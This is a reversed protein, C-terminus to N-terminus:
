SVELSIKEYTNNLEKASSKLEEYTIEDRLYKWFDFLFCDICAQLTNNEIYKKKGFWFDFIQGANLQVFFCDVDLEQNFVIEQEEKTYKIDIKKNETKLYGLVMKCLEDSVIDIGALPLFYDKPIDPLDGYCKFQTYYTDYTVIGVNLGDLWDKINM